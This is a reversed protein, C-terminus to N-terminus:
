VEYGWEECAGPLEDIANKVMREFTAGYACIFVHKDACERCLFTFCIEGDLTELDGFEIDYEFKDGNKDAVADLKKKLDLILEEATM